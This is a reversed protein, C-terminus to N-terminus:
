KSKAEGNIYIVVWISLFFRDRGHWLASQDGAICILCSSFSPFLQKSAVPRYKIDTRRVHYGIHYYIPPDVLYCGRLPSSGRHTGEYRVTTVFLLPLARYGLYKSVSSDGVKFASNGLTKSPTGRAAPVASFRWSCGVEVTITYFPPRRITRFPPLLTERCSTRQKTGSWVEFPPNPPATAHHSTSGHPLSRSTPYPVFLSPSRRQWAVDGSPHSCAVIVLRCMVCLFPIM